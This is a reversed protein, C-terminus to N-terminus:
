ITEEVWHIRDEDYRNQQAEEESYGPPFIREYQNGENRDRRRNLGREISKLAKEAIRLENNM